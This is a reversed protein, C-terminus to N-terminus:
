FLHLVTHTPPTFHTPPIQPYLSSGEQPQHIFVGYLRAHLVSAQCTIPGLGLRVIVSLLPTHRGSNSTVPEWLHLYGASSPSM